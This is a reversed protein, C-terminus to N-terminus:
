AMKKIYNQFYEITKTLGEDLKVGPSWNMVKQALGIDPKRQQPDDEPLTKFELTSNSGTLKIIKEALELMTFEGPNGLNVPGTFDDATNMLQIFGDIM